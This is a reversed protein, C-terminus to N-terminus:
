ERRENLRIITELCRRRDEAIRLEATTQLVEIEAITLADQAESLKFRDVSTQADAYARRETENKGAEPSAMYAVRDAAIRAEIVIVARKRQILRIEADALRGRFSIIMDTVQELRQIM